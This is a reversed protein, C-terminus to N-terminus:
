ELAGKVVVEADAVDAERPPAQADARLLLLPPVAALVALVEVAVAM